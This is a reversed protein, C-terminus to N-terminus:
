YFILRMENYLLIIMNCKIRTLINCSLTYVKPTQRLHEFLSERHFRIRPAVYCLHILNFPPLSSELVSYPLNNLFFINLLEAFLIREFHLYQTKMLHGEM